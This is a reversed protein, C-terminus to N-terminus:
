NHQCQLKSEEKKIEQEDAYVKKAIEKIKQMNWNYTPSKEKATSKIPETM